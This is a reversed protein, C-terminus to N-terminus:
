WNDDTKNNKALFTKYSNMIEISQRDIYSYLDNLSGECSDCKLLEEIQGKSKCDGSDSWGYLQVQKMSMQNYHTYGLNTIEIKAKSDKVAVKVDYELYVIRLCGFNGGTYKHVGRVVLRKTADDHFKLPQDNKFLQDVSSPNGKNIGFFTSVVGAQDESNSGNFLKINTTAWEKSLKYLKDSTYSPDLEIINKYLVTGTEKDVPLKSPVKAGGTEQSYSNASFGTLAIFVFAAIISKYM